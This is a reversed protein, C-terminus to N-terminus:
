EVVKFTVLSVDVAIDHGVYLYIFDDGLLIIVRKKNIEQYISYEIYFLFVCDVGM